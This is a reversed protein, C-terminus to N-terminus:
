GVVEFVFKWKKSNDARRCNRAGVDTKGTLVMVDASRRSGRLDREMEPIDARRCNPTRRSAAAKAIAVGGGWRDSPRSEMGRLLPLLSGCELRVKAMEPIDARRCNQGPVLAGVLGGDNRVSDASHPATKWRANKTRHIERGDGSFAASPNRPCFGGEFHRPVALLHSRVHNRLSSRSPRRSDRSFTPAGVNELGQLRRVKTRGAYVGCFEAQGALFGIRDVASACQVGSELFLITPAGVNKGGVDMGRECINGSGSLGGGRWGRELEPIDARRCKEGRREERGGRM